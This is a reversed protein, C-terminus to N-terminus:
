ATCPALFGARELLAELTADGAGAVTVVTRPFPAEPDAMAHARLQLRDSVIAGTRRAEAANAGRLMVAFRGDEHHDAVDSDRVLTHLADLTGAPAHVVVLALGSGERRAQALARRVREEFSERVSTPQRRRTPAGRGPIPPSMGDFTSPM